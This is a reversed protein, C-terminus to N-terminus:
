KTIDICETRCNMKAIERMLLHKAESECTAKIVARLNLNFAFAPEQTMSETKNSLVEEKATEAQIKVQRSEKVSKIEKELYLKITEDDYGKEIYLSAFSEIATPACEEINFKFVSEVLKKIEIFRQSNDIIVTNIETILEKAEKNMSEATRKGKVRKSLKEHFESYTVGFKDCEVVEKFAEEYFVDKMAAKHEKIAKEFSSQKRQLMEDVRKLISRIEAVDKNDLAMNAVKIVDREKKIIKVINSGIAFDESVQMNESKVQELYTCIHNEYDNANEHLEISGIAQVTLAMTPEINGIESLSSHVEETPNEFEEEVEADIQEFEEALTVEEHYQQADPAQGQEPQYEMDHMEEGKKFVKYYVSRTAEIDSLGDHANIKIGFHDALTALKENETNEKESYPLGKYKVFVDLSREDFLEDHLDQKDFDAFLQKLFNNDFSINNFGARFFNTNEYKALIDMLEKFGDEASQYDDMISSKLGCFTFAGEDVTKSPLVKMKINAKEIVKGDIEIIIGMQHIGNKYPRFGTTELDYWFIANQKKM